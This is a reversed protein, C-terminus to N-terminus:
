NLKNKLAGIRLWLITKDIGHEAEYAHIIKYDVKAFKNHYILKARKNLYLRNKSVYSPSNSPM